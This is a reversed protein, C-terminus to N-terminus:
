GVILHLVEEILQVCASQGPTVDSAIGRANTDMDILHVSPLPPQGTHFKVVFHNAGARHTIRHEVTFITEPLLTGLPVAIKTVELSEIRACMFRAKILNAVSLQFFTNINSRPCVAWRM